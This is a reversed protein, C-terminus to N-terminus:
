FKMDRTIAPEGTDGSSARPLQEEYIDISAIDGAPLVIKGEFTALHGVRRLAKYWEQNARELAAKAEGEDAFEIKHEGSSKTKIRLKWM